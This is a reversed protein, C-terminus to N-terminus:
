LKVNPIHTTACISLSLNLYLSYQILVYTYYVMCGDVYTQPLPASGGVSSKVVGDLPRLERPSV